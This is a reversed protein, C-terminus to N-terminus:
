GNCVEIVIVELQNDIQVVEVEQEISVIDSVIVSTAVVEASGAQLANNLAATIIM